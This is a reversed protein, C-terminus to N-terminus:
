VTQPKSLTRRHKAELMMLCTLVRFESYDEKTESPEKPHRCIDDNDVIPVFTGLDFPPLLYCFCWMPHGLSNALHDFVEPKCVVLYTPLLVM